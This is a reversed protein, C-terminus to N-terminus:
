LKKIGFIYVIASLTFAGAGLAIASLDITIWLGWPVSDSLNTIVLGEVLVRVAAYLGVVLLVSLFGMWLLFARGFPLQFSKRPLTSTTM